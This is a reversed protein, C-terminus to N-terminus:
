ASDAKIVWGAYTQFEFRAQCFLDQDKVFLDIVTPIRELVNDTLSYSSHYFFVVFFFLVHYRNM